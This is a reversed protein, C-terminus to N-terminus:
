ITGRSGPHARLLWERAYRRLCRLKASGSFTIIPPELATTTALWLVSGQCRHRCGAQYGVLSFESRIGADVSEMEAAASPGSRPVCIKGPLADM